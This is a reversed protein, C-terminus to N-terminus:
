RRTTARKVYLQQTEQKSLLPRRYNWKDLLWVKKYGAALTTEPRSPIALVADFGADRFANPLGDPMPVADGAALEEFPGEYAYFNDGFHIGEFRESLSKGRGRAALDRARAVFGEADELQGGFEVFVQSAQAPDDLSLLQLLRLPEPVRSADFGSALVPVLPKESFWAAGTEFAIWPRDVSAATLLVLFCDASRLHQMIVNFWDRGSPIKGPRTTRFVEIGPIASRISLELYEALDIDAVSHSLFLERKREM